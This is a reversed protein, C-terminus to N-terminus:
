PHSPQPVRSGTMSASTCSLGSLLAAATGGQDTGSSGQVTGTSSKNVGGCGSLALSLCCSFVILAVTRGSGDSCIQVAGQPRSQDVRSTGDSSPADCTALECGPRPRASVGYM